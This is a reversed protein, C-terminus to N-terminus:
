IARLRAALRETELSPKIGLIISLNDRCRRYADYAEAQKGQSLYCEMLHRYLNEALPDEELARRYVTAAREGRGEREHFRGIMELHRM